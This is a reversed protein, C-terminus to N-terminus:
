RPSDVYRLSANEGQVFYKSGHGFDLSHTIIRIVNVLALSSELNGLPTSNMLIERYNDLSFLVENM